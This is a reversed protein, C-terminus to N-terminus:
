RDICGVFVTDGSALSENVAAEVIATAFEDVTPLGNTDKRGESLAGRSKRELLKLTITGEIADGSVVVLSIKRSNLNREYARLADEGARKSKAVIEYEPMSPKTGYFHAWHSTVFVIRSGEPMLEECLKATELQATHNLRMAYNEDKGKEMGGSANLILLDLRGFTQKIQELMAELEARETLDAKLAVAQRGLANIQRVVEDARNAKSRYNVAVDSGAEALKVATAAGIGRSAGTVLSFKGELSLPVAARASVPSPIRQDERPVSFHVAPEHRQARESSAPDTKRSDSM